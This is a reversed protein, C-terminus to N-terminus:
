TWIRGYEKGEEARKPQESQERRSEKEHEEREGQRQYVKRSGRESVCKPARERELVMKKQPLRELERERKPM